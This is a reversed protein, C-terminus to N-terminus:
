GAAGGRLARRVARALERPGPEALVRGSPRLRWLTARRGDPTLTLLALRPHRYMLRLCPEPLRPGAAGTVLLHARTDAVIRELDGGDGEVVEVGPEGALADRVIAGLLPPLGALLVRRSRAAHLPAANM